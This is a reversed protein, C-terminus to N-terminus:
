AELCEDFDGESLSNNRISGQSALQKVTFIGYVVGRGNIADAM